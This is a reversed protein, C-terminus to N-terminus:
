VVTVTAYFNGNKSYLGYRSMVGKAPCMSTNWIVPTSWLPIYPLYVYGTYLWNGSKHGVIAKDATYFPDHYCRYQESLVGFLNPGTVVRSMGATTDLSRFSNLKRLRNAFTAGYLIFNGHEYVRTFIQTDADSIADFISEAYQRPTANAWPNPTAPQTSTWTTNTTACSDIGTIIERNIEREIQMGMMRSVENNLNLAYQSALDQSAEESWEAKLKKTVATITAATLSLCLENPEACEGPDNSYDPDENEYISSGSSYTEGTSCYDFDLTHARTTPGRMPQVSAIQNAFLRPWIKRILPLAKNTFTAIDSTTTTELLNSADIKRGFLREYGKVTEAVFNDLLIETQRRLTSLETEDMHYSKLVKDEELAHRGSFWKSWRGQRSKDEYMWPADGPRLLGEAQMSKLQEVLQKSM